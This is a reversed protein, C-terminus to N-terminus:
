EYRLSEVPNKRSIAISHRITTFFAILLSFFGAILFMQANMEVHYPFNSLWIIGFYWAAPWAICNAVVIWFLFTKSLLLIVESGKAGMVKRIGIEKTRQQAIFASLGFLGLSAIFIALLSFGAFMKGMSIEKQYHHDLNEDLFEYEFPFSSSHEKWKMQIFSLVEEVKTASIRIVATGSRNTDWAIVLAGIPEHLSKYHFNRIVGAVHVVQEDGIFFDKGAPSDFGFLRVAEENILVTHHKDSPREWSLDRGELIDIEMVDLFDPDSPLLNYMKPEGDITWSETWTIKGPISNVLSFGKIEPNQLLDNKLVQWHPKIERNLPVVLIHDQNFGLNKDRMYSTQRMVLLTGIVLFVALSFQMVILLKRLQVASKGKFQEGKLISAPKLSTLYCAPYMGALLGLIITGSLISVLFPPNFVISSELNQFLSHFRSMSIEIMILAFLLSILCIIVSEFLFQNILSIRTGGLVKRLGIEKYRRVATAISLNVYNVAAILLIFFAVAALTKMLGMNGHRTGMEHQVDKTFYIDSLPRLHLELLKNRGAIQEFYDDIKQQLSFSDQGPKLLLYTPFNMNGFFYDNFNADGSMIPLSSFSALASITLHSKDIDKIIGTVTFDHQNNYRLVKGVPDDNGFINTAVSHTLVICFPSNLATKPDGQIFDFTFVQFVSSDAFALHQIRELYSNYSIIPAYRFDFRLAQEVEPFHEQLHVAPATGLIGWNGYEVRYIRDFHENFRDTSTESLIYGVILISAFLGISLGLVNLFLLMQSRRFNRIASIFYNRLM